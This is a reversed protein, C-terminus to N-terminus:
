FSITHIVENPQKALRHVCYHGRCSSVLFARDPPDHTGFPKTVHPWHDRTHLRSDSAGLLFLLAWLALLITNQMAAFGM